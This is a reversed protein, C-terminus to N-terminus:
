YLKLFLKSSPQVILPTNFMTIETTTKDLGSKSLLPKQPMLKFLNVLLNQHMDNERYIFILNFIIEIDILELLM